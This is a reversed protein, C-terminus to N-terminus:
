YGLSDTSAKKDNNSGIDDKTGVEPLLRYFSAPRRLSNFNLFIDSLELNKQGPQVLKPDYEPVMGAPSMKSPAPLIPGKFTDSLPTTFVQPKSSRTERLLLPTSVLSPRSGSIKSAYGARGGTSLQPVSSTDDCPPSLVANKSLNSRDLEVLPRVSGSIKSVYGKHSDGSLTPLSYTKPTHDSPPPLAAGDSLEEGTAGGSAMVLVGGLAIGRLSNGAMLRSFNSQVFTRHFKSQNHDFMHLVLFFFSSSSTLLQHPHRESSLFSPSM